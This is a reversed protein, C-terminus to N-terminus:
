AHQRRAKVAIGTGVLLLLAALGALMGVDAGTDPLDGGASGEATGPGAGTSDEGPDTPDEGPDTPDAGPDTPDAGPDTPEEGPDTPQEGVASFEFTWETTADEGLVYGEAARAIITVSGQASYVGPALVEGPTPVLAMAIDRAFVSRAGAGGPSAGATEGLLVYEVGEVEPITFSDSDTGPEDTFIVEEPSVEVPEGPGESSDFTHSWEAVAGEALEYGELAQATVTVSGAGGHTGAEIVEDGVLYEVGEVEPVTFSDDETGPEDTFTVEEPTVQVPEEPEPQGAPIGTLYEFGSTAFSEGDAAMDYELAYYAIPADEAAALIEQLPMEGEGLNAFTPGDESGLGTADKVHLLEVRDGYEGFLAPVDVGAHAAWAVDLEFTVYEPDTEAVLIEWASLQEGEHEYTTTFEGDHNHGFFKGVGAQVSRQGLRNMAEATALTDEYSDIGPAAFGGSGVYEQGLTDVFELTEDFSDEDVDYHSSPVSLGYEAALERFEEATYGEFNGGFPEINVFGIEGLRELVVELGVEDVWPILSFMQVSVDEVPVALRDPDVNTFVFSWETTAGDALEYGELAQATVTVSGAGPHTGAEIVEDGVLYEAGEVEPVTFTDDATGPEETFTVEEPTVEAPAEDLAKIQVDRYYLTEGDGHNQLGIFGQSLDRAPDTSTFDNILVGNLYILVNDGEVRIDYSNWEGVPNLAADRAEEDAGQFTYIAGTTRDPEDSADIQVEYGEDVAVWPDDGPDPFGIFVGGNDDKVMKWDLTLSYDGVHEEAHWLLGMGGSTRLTCNEDRGFSGDGALSWDEFSALTGDFLSSYGAEPEVPTCIDPQNISLADLNVNGDDGEDYRLSVENTGADLELDRSVTDWSQWSGTSPLEWPGVREGNVYLSLTKPGEFPNPGNAYRLFTPYTGAEEVTVDFSVGAGVEQIADAFGAGSYGSHEADIDAGGILAAHEAEYFGRDAPGVYGPLQNLTYWAETSWLQEGEESEFPQPDHPSRIHVIRDPRLGDIELTVTRRDASVEASTVPLVEEGVKPGGYSSTPVYRWQSIEYAEALNEVTADSLPETYTVEFGGEILNVAHMDFTGDSVPVLKQLGYDLKGPESWNGAEGIGGVYVSGDPGVITRNVGAELGASHRFVAGQYEGDVEDLAIRQLGGYTVDGFLMQGAFPGEELTIPASPSNGISNQPIWVAPPTVPQDDFPGAPQNYHNFFRDQEIHVLKSSPLWDGQNDMVFLDDNPGWAIGNPTRLGGAIYSVEGTERDVKIATGRNEAPQPETSAGGQDIAVSLSLYFYDEDHILGFAFEHFNEGFPWTAIQESQDYQGDGDPDTLETLGDRESVFISDDIVAVGMPNFLESAVLTATVDEPGTADQVGELLYVEGSHPDDTWGGPSVNGSTVVVMDGEATFDLASVMPEFGEPRLDVLEYNPNVDFLPLGDGATDSDGVCNKIGPATVRVVGAETSLVEQPVTVFETSGPVKWELTLRQDNTGDFHEIRLAHFGAELTVTGTVSTSDQPGDNELILEDDLYFLAGDDNTMRFEYEGAEAVDLNALAHTIFHDGLGFQEQSDWDITEMVQDVNPTTGPVLECVAEPARGLQFTRLTVGPEQEPLADPPM